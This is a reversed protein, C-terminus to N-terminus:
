IRSRTTARRTIPRDQIYFNIRLLHGKTQKASKRLLSHDQPVGSDGGLPIFLRLKEVKGGREEKGLRWRKQTKVKLKRRREVEFKGRDRGPELKMGGRIQAQKWRRWTAAENRKSGRVQKMVELNWTGSMVGGIDVELKCWRWTGSATCGVM